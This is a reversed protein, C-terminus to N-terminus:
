WSWLPTREGQAPDDGSARPKSQIGSKMNDFAPIMGARAPNVTKCDRVVVIGRPDDGSARPKGATPVFGGSVPPIM